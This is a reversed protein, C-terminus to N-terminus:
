HHTYIGHGSYEITGNNVSYNITFVSDSSFTGTGWITKNEPITGCYVTQAPIVISTDHLTAHVLANEIGAFRTFYIINNTTDPASITDYYTTDPAVGIFNEIYYNGSLLPGADVIVTRTTSATNGAADSCTYTITYEGASLTDVTGNTTISISGDVDDTAVAGADSYPTGWTIVEPNNGKLTIVPETTDEKKCSFALFLIIIALLPIKKM